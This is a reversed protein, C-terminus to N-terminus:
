SVASVSQMLADAILDLESEKLQPYLPLTITRAFAAHSNVIDGSRYGFKKQFFPQDHLAYTGLTTEVGRAKMDEVVRDRSIGEDVLIVYSQYIHGGWKPEIPIRIGRIKSLRESLLGALQQKREVLWSLKEMQAVGIAGLVDSLRYNFGAEEYQFWSGIRVGGHSRLLKIRDALRADNTTIMGGEGTTIVKRPHFSFCGMTSLNGCYRDYYKTGIATAADEIVPINHESAIALIPDFDAACGFADVPIIAKTRPTIKRRLDDPNMTLTDLDIDVLVPIAGLQVVVNATAPFTFDAVLVEDGPKIDLVVLALHLATTCSSMAFAYKCGIYDAVLQEFEVTKPGQTLYGTSLVKSIEELERDDTFPINLRIM